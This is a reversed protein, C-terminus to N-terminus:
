ESDFESLPPNKGGLIENYFVVADDLYRKGEADLGDTFRKQDEKNLGFLPHMARFSSKMGNKTGGLASYEAMYKKLAEKDKYRVALRINYLAGGRPTLWFGESARNNKSLFRKKEDFIYSYATQGPDTKYIFMGPISKLYGETPKGAIARYENELGLQKAAYEWRDRITSPKTVDPYISRGAAIEFPAKAFPTIGGGIVNVPSKAMDLAVEKLSKKGNFLDSVHQPAADLGFWELVDGVAGLRNFSIVKGNKDRGPPLIIHPRSRVGEPLDKEEDSFFMNNWATLASWLATAKLAFKGVRWAVLPSKGVTALLKRGVASAADHSETANKWFQFYRKMNVEKWSWFPYMHERLMQGVVSVKDYAGLLDNSLEFARESADRLAAIKQPDSAGFNKPKGGGIEMQKKYDIFSAYRLLQERFDTSIRAAKWYKKILGERGGREYLNKFVGIKNVSDMEQSQLTSGMGGLEFYKELEPTLKKNKYFDWLEKAAQPVRKFSSPNGVFVADADGSMNRVNYKVYRRPSILTWRKWSRMLAKSGASVLNDKAMASLNDLTDALENKIVWQRKKGGVALIKRLDGSTIGIEELAGSSLKNALEAPISDAKYFISGENPQWLRHGIPVFRQWSELGRDRLIGPRIAEIRKKLESTTRRTIEQPNGGVDVLTKELMSVYKGKITDYRNYGKDFKSITEAVRTNYLMGRMVEHEAEIYDKNIDMRSGRRQKMWPSGTPTKLKNGVGLARREQMKEIIQHRFYNPNTFRDGVDTGASKMASIYNSKLEDWVAARKSIASEVDPHQSVHVDLASKNRSLSEPTFGFPLAKGESAVQALDDMIVKRSFLDYKRPNLNNTINSINKVANFNAVEQYKSLARLDFNAQSFEPTGPLHEFNRLSKNKFEVVFEKIKQIKSEPKITASQFRREIEPEDFKFEVRKTPGKVAEAKPAAMDAPKPAEGVIKKSTPVEKIGLAAREAATPLTADSIVNEPAETYRLFVGADAAIKIIKPDTVEIPTGNTMDYVTKTEPDGIFIREGKEPQLGGARIEGGPGSKINSPEGYSDFKVRVAPKANLEEISLGKGGVGGHAVDRVPESLEKPNLVVVENALKHEVPYKFGAYGAEKLKDAIKRDIGAWSERSRSNTDMVFDPSQKLLADIEANGGTYIKEKPIEMDVYKTKGLLKMSEPTDIGSDKMNDIDFFSTPRNELQKNVDRTYRRIKITDSSVPESIGGSAGKKVSEITSVPPRPVNGGEGQGIVRGAPAQELNIPKRVPKQEIQKRGGIPFLAGQIFGATVKKWDIDSPDKGEAIKRATEEVLPVSSMAAGGLLQRPILPLQKKGIGHLIKDIVFGTAGGIAAEKGQELQSGGQAKSAGGATAMSYPVIGGVSMLPVSVGAGGLGSALYKPMTGEEFGMESSKAAQAEMKKALQDATNTRKSELEPPLEPRVTMKGSLWDAGRVAGALEGMAGSGLDGLFKVPASGAFKELATLKLDEDTPQEPRANQAGPKKKTQPKVYATWDIEDEQKQEEPEETAAFKTWDIEAM